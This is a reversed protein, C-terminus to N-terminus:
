ATPEKRDSPQGRFPRKIAYVSLAAAVATFLLGALYPVWNWSGTLHDGTETQLARLVALAGLGLGLCLLVSGILGWSLFGKLQKLPEITEQKAYDRCLLWLDNVVEKVGQHEGPM